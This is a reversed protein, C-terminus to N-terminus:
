SRVRIQVRRNKKSYPDAADLLESSGKGVTVLRSRDIGHHSVLYDAVAAAREQSLELNKAANGSADTHGEVVFGADANKAMVKALADIFPLSGPRIKASGVAFNIPFGVGGPASPAAAAASQAAAKPASSPAPQQAAVPQAPAPASAAPAPDDGIVISRTKARKAPAGGMLASELEEASPPTDYMKVQAFAGGGGAFVAAGLTVAVFARVFCTVTM